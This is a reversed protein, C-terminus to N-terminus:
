KCIHNPKNNLNNGCNSCLGLCDDSCIKNLPTDLIIEEGIIYLLDIQSNQPLLLAFDREESNLTSSSLDSTYVRPFVLNIPKSFKQLCRDCVLELRTQCNFSLIIKNNDRTVLIEGKIPELFVIEQDSRPETIDFSLKKDVQFTKSLFPTLDIFHKATM